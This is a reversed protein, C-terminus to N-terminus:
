FLEVGRASMSEQQVPKHQDAQWQAKCSVVHARLSTLVDAYSAAAVTDCPRLREQIETSLSKLKDVHKDANALLQQVLDEFQLSRVAMGVHEHIRDTMRSVDGLRESVYGDLEKLRGIMNDVQQKAGLFVTMDKAAMDGILQRTADITGKGKGVQVAIQESFVNSRQSLHRVEEAVVAFGRGAEGARAAEVAANLALLNTQRAIIMIDGQLRFIADMQQGVDDMQHVIRMSQQSTKVLLDVFYELTQSVTEIFNQISIHKADATPEETNIQQILSLIVDRQSQTHQNLGHFSDHLKGMADGVIDRIQDLETHMVLVEDHMIHVLAVTLERLTEAAAVDQSGAPTAAVVPSTEAQRWANEYAQRINTLGARVVHRIAGILTDPARTHHGTEEAIESRIEGEVTGETHAAGLREVEVQMMGRLDEYLRELTQERGQALAAQQQRSRGVTLGWMVISLVWVITLLPAGPGMYQLVLGLLSCVVAPWHVVLLDVFM